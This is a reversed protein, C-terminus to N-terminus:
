SHKRTLYSSIALDEANKKGITPSLADIDDIMEAYADHVIKALDTDHTVFKREDYEPLSYKGEDIGKLKAQISEVNKSYDSSVEITAQVPSDGRRYFMDSFTDMFRVIVSKENKGPLFHVDVNDRVKVYEDTYDLMDSVLGSIRQQVRNLSANHVIGTFAPSYNNRIEM